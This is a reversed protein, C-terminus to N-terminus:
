NLHVKSSFWDGTNRKWCSSSGSSIGVSSKGQDIRRQYEPHKGDDDDDVDDVDDIDVDVDIDLDGGPHAFAAVRGVQQHQLLRPGEPVM